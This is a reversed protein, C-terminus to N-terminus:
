ARDRSEGSGGPRPVVGGLAQCGSRRRKLAVTGTRVAEPDLSDTHVNLPPPEPLSGEASLQPVLSIGELKSSLAAFSAKRITRFDPHEHGAEGYARALRLDWLQIGGGATSSALITGDSSLALGHDGKLCRSDVRISFTRWITCSLPITMRRPLWCRATAVSPWTESVDKGRAPRRGPGTTTSSCWRGPSPRILSTGFGSRRTGPPPPWPTRTPVSPLAGSMARMDVSRPCNSRNPPIRSTGCSSPTMTRGPPWGPETGPQLGRERDGGYPRHSCEAGRLRDSGDRGVVEGHRRPFRNRGNKGDPSFAVCYLADEHGTRIASEKPHAPDSVDWVRLTRDQSATVLTRGDPSFAAGYLRDQHGTLTALGRAHGSEGVAWLRATGDWAASALITHDSNFALQVAIGSHGTELRNGVLESHGSVNVLRITQDWSGSALITGDASFALDTVGNRHGPLAALQTAASPDSVNWLRITPDTSGSALIRGDPSFAVGWVRDEFEALVTSDGLNQPDSLDWLRITRDWSASALVKGVPSFAVSSVVDEHATLRSVAVPNRADSIDWLRITNDSSASALMTGDASFAAGAVWGDHSALTALAVPNGPDGVDWLRVTRDQSGSTLIRGDASFEVCAIAGGHGVLSTLYQPSTVDGVDWM